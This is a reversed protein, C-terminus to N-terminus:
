QYAATANIVGSYAGTPTSSMVTFSGGLYITVAGDPNSLNVQGAGNYGNSNFGPNGGSADNGWVARPTMVITNAGSTLNVSSDVSVSVQRYQQGQIKLAGASPALSPVTAIGGTVEMTGGGGSTPTYTVTGSGSPPRVVGGFSFNTLRSIMLPTNVLTPVTATTSYSPCGATSPTITISLASSGNGASGSGTASVPLNYGLNFNWGQYYTTGSPSLHITLPASGSTSVIGGGGTSAVAFATLSQNLGTPAGVAAVTVRPTDSCGSFNPANNVNSCDSMAMQVQIQRGSASASLSGPGSIKSVTGGTSTQFTTTGSGVGGAIVGIPQISSVYNFVYSFPCAALASGPMAVAALLGVSLGKRM